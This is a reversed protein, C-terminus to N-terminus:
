KRSKSRYRIRKPSKLAFKKSSLRNKNRTVLFGKNNLIAVKAEKDELISGNKSAFSSFYGTFSSSM